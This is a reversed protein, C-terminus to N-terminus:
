IWFVCGWTEPIGMAFGVATGPNKPDRLLVCPEARPPYAWIYGLLTGQPCWNWPLEPMVALYKGEPHNFSLHSRNLARGFIETISYVM